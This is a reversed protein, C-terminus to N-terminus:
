HWQVMLFLALVVAEDLGSEALQSLAPVELADGLTIVCAEPFTALIQGNPCDTSVVPTAM